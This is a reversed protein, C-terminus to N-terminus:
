CCTPMYEANNFQFLDSALKTWPILPIEPGLPLATKDCPRKKPKARAYKLCTECIGIKAEIDKIMMLWYISSRARNVCKEIGLHGEHIRTLM